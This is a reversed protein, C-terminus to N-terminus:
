RTVAGRVNSRVHSWETGISLILAIGRKGGTAGNENCVRRCCETRPSIASSPYYRRGARCLFLPSSVHPPIQPPFVLNIWQEVWLTNHPHAMETPAIISFIGKRRLDKIWCCYQIWNHNEFVFDCRWRGNYSIYIIAMTHGGSEKGM